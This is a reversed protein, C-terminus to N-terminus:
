RLSQLFALLDAFEQPSLQADLGQPMISVKGPEIGDLDARPINNRMLPWDLGQPVKTVTAM